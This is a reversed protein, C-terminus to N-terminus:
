LVLITAGPQSRIHTGHKRLLLKERGLVNQKGKCGSRHGNLKWNGSDNSNCVFNNRVSVHGSLLLLMNQRQM